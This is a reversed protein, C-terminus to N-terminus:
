RYPGAQLAFLHAYSGDRTMLQDHSGEEHVSGGELVVIRDVMRVTSFRHSILIATKDETLDTFRQFLEYEATADLAATPEDLILIQADRLYARALALRQWEGGSLDVGGEFRRGLMQELGDPLRALLNQNGGKKLAELLAADKYRAEMRGVAINDRASLDYRTFDQFVVGIQKHLDPLDYERLDIGNLLIQGATPEYLRMLLKIVTTKGEGNQGVIAIRERAGITLNLKNLVLRSTGPYAFSVDRFEFGTQIPRALPVAHIRNRITPKVAFFQLLDTLFLAQDGIIAFTSFLMQIQSSTGALAGGVFTLAGVTLAGQMTRIVLLAYAGYYGLSAVIALLAGARLRRWALSGNRSIVEDSTATFWESLFPGLGFIKLEKASERRTGLDRLYDMERRLPTLSYALSYALLSFHCEGLFAPIVTVVMLGLLPPSFALVGLALSLLTVAQQLLKGLANLMGVRDTAQVRARELKDYFVPDEFSTLDLTAAHQMVKLTVDRSFQDALRTDCYDSARGLISGTAAIVFEIGLLWWIRSSAAGPHRAAEVVLDIILKGVWLAALPLLAMAMRLIMAATVLRPGSGWLLKLVPPLNKLADFRDRWPKKGFSTRLRM